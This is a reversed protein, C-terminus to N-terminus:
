SEGRMESKLGKPIYSVWHGDRKRLIYYREQACLGGCFHGVYVLANNFLRKWGGMWM